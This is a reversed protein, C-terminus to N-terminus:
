RVAGAAVHGEAALWSLHEVLPEASIPEVVLRHDDDLYYVRGRAFIEGHEDIHAALQAEVQLLKVKLGRRREQMADIGERPGPTFDEVARSLAAHAALCADIEDHIM